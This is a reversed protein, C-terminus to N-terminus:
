EGEIDTIWFAIGERDIINYNEYVENISTDDEFVVLYKNYQEKVKANSFFFMSIVFFIATIISLATSEGLSLKWINVIFFVIFAIGMIACGFGPWSWGLGREVVEVTNLVTM